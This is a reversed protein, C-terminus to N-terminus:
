NNWIRLQLGLERAAPELRGQLERPAVALVGGERGDGRKLAAAVAAPPQLYTAGWGLSPYSDRVLILTGRRGRVLQQLEVFHGVDWDPAPRDPIEAGDLVAVLTELPPRSGWLRGTRLNAILRVELAATADLLGTLTAASWPGAFPICTLAGASLEEIAEAMGGASTGSGAAPARPLAYRYDRLSVAGPPVQPGTEVQPLTTGAQLAVLDQDLPEGRWETIGADRLVRAAHFPGCLNDKQQPATPSLKRRAFSIEWPPAGAAAETSWQM